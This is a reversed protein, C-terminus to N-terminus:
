NRGTTEEQAAGEGCNEEEGDSAAVARERVGELGIGEQEWWWRSFWDGPRWFYQEILGLIPRTMIYQAVKKQRRTIYVGIEEFVAEEMEEALPPYGWRGERRTKRGTIRWVVRHQFSGLAREMRPTLVWTESGLILVAQVVAKFFLGWIRPYAGERVLIRKM